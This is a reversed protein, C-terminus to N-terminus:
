RCLQTQLTAYQISCGMYDWKAQDGCPPVTCGDWQLCGDTSSVLCACLWGSEFPTTETACEALSPRWLEENDDCDYDFSGDGRDVAFFATQGPRADANGDYCDGDNEFVYGEVTLGWCVEVCDAPDGYGDGDADRCWTALDCADFSADSAADEVLNASGDLGGDGLPIDLPNAETCAFLSLSM